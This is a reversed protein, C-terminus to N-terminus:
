DPGQQNKKGSKYKNIDQLMYKAKRVIVKDIGQQIIVNLYKILNQPM